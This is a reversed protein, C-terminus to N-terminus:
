LSIYKIKQMLSHAVDVCRLDTAEGETFSCLSTTPPVVLWDAVAGAHLRRAAGSAVPLLPPPQQPSLRGRGGSGGQRTGSSPVSVGGRTWWLSIYPIPLRSKLPPLFCSSPSSSTHNPPLSKYDCIIRNSMVQSYLQRRVRGEADDCISLGHQM